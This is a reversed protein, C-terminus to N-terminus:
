LAKETFMFFQGGEKLLYEVNPLCWVVWKNCYRNQWDLRSAPSCWVLSLICLNGEKGLCPFYNSTSFSLPGPSNGRYQKKALCHLQQPTFVINSYNKDSIGLFKFIEQETLMSELRYRCIAREPTAQYVRNCKEILDYFRFRDRRFPRSNLMRINGAPLAPTLFIEPFIRLFQIDGLSFISKLLSEAGCWFELQDSELKKCASSFSEFLTLLTKHPEIDLAHVRKIESRSPISKSDFKTYSPTDLIQMLKKDEMRSWYLIEDQTLNACVYSFLEILRLVSAVASTQQLHAM